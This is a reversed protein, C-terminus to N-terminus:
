CGNHVGLCEILGYGSSLFKQSKGREGNGHGLRVDNPVYRKGEEDLFDIRSCLCGNRCDLTIRPNGLETAYSFVYWTEPYFLPATGKAKHECEVKSPLIQGKLNIEWDSRLAISEGSVELCRDLFLPLLAQRQEETM